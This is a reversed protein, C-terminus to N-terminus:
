TTSVSWTSSSPSDQASAPAECRQSTVKGEIFAADVGAAEARRRAAEIAAPVVDVGVVRWGRLALKVSWRGTGCGLDLAPGYPANREAEELALLRDIQAGVVGSDQEWPTFGVKYLLRYWLSM